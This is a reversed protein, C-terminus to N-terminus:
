RKLCNQRWGGNGIEGEKEDLEFEDWNQSKIFLIEVGLKLNTVPQFLFTFSESLAVLRQLELGSEPRELTKMKWNDRYREDYRAIAGQLQTSLHNYPNFRNGHRDLRQIQSM